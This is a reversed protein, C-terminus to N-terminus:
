DDRIPVERSAAVAAVTTLTFDEVPREDVRIDLAGRAPQRLNGVYAEWDVRFTGPRTTTVVLQRQSLETVGHTLTEVRFQATLQDRDRFFDPGSIASPPSPLKIKPLSPLAVPGTRYAPLGQFVRNRQEFRPPTPPASLSLEDEDSVAAVGEPLTLRLTVGRAVSEGRNTIAVLARVLSFNPWRRSEFADLWQRLEIAYTALETNFRGLANGYPELAIEIGTYPNAEPAPTISERAIGLQEAVCAEEDIAAYPKSPLQVTTVTEVGIQLAVGLEPRAQFPKWGLFTVGSFIASYVVVVFTAITIGFALGLGAALGVLVVLAVPLM